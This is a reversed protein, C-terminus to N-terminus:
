PITGGGCSKRPFQIPAYKDRRFPPAHRFRIRLSAPEERALLDLRNQAHQTPFIEVQDGPLCPNDLTVWIEGTRTM